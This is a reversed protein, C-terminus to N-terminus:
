DPRHGAAKGRRKATMVRRREAKSGVVAQEAVTMGEAGDGARRSELARELSLFHPRRQRWLPVTKKDGLMLDEMRDM